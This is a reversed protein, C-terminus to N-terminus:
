TTLFERIIYTDQRVTAMYFKLKNTIQELEDKSYIKGEPPRFGLVVIIALDGNELQISIRNMKISVGLIQSLLQATSQHGVASVFNTNCKLLKKVYDLSIPQIYIISPKSFM